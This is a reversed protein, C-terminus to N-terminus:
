QAGRSQNIRGRGRQGNAGGVTLARVAALAEQPDYLCRDGLKIFPIRKAERRDRQLFSVSVGLMPALEADTIFLPKGPQPQRQDQTDTM